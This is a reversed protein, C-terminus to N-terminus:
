QSQLPHHSFLILNPQIGPTSVISQFLNKTREKSNCHIRNRNSICNEFKEHSHSLFNISKSHPAQPDPRPTSDAWIEQQIIAMITVTVLHDTSSCTVASEEGFSDIIKHKFQISQKETPFYNPNTFSRFTGPSAMKMASLKLLFFSHM